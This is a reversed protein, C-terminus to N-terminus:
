TDIKRAFRVDNELLWWAESACCTAHLAFWLGILFQDHKPLGIPVLVVEMLTDWRRRFQSGSLCLVKAADPQKAATRAALLEQDGQELGRVHTARLLATMPEM